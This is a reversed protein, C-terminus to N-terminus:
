GGEREGALPNDPMRLSCSAGDPSWGEVVASVGLFMKFADRGVTEMTEKFSKCRVVRNKACFEDVLRIGINYGRCEAPPPPTPLLPSLSHPPATVPFLPLPGAAAPPECEV